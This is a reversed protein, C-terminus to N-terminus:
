FESISSQNKVEVIERTLRLFLIEGIATTVRDDEDAAAEFRGNRRERAVACAARLRRVRLTEPGNDNQTPCRAVDRCDVTCPLSSTSRAVM